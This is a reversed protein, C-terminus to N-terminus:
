VTVVELARQLRSNTLVVGYQGALDMLPQFRRRKKEAHNQAIDALRHRLFPNGFREEVSQMYMRAQEGQGMADFVPLVEEQWVARLTRVIGDTQMAEHVTMDPARDAMSQWTEVMCSHGLNLFLLKLREYSALEDTVIVQPHLCPLVMGPTREIAWLAYPEAVAGVPKIAESVIRDVLSNVWICDNKLYDQFDAPLSWQSALQLLVGKLVDGNRSILECPYLTIPAGGQLFRYWLLLLLRAPFSEPVSDVRQRFLRDALPIEYGKDGTNSIVVQSESSAVIDQLAIWDKTAVLGKRVSNVWYTEDVLAGQQLGRLHVPYGKADSFAAIRGASEPNNTGQVITIGGLAEGAEMAQSVFLDVHAQLFRSTGFQLIPSTM